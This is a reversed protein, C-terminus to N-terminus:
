VHLVLEVREALGVVVDDRASVAAVCRRRHLVGFGEGQGRELVAEGEDHLQVVEPRRARRGNTPRNRCAIIEAGRSSQRGTSTTSSSACRKAGCSPAVAAVSPTRARVAWPRLRPNVALALWGACRWSRRSRGPRRSCSATQAPDALRQVPAGDRIREAERGTGGLRAPQLAQRIAAEPAEARRDAALRDEEPYRIHFSRRHAGPLGLHRRRRRSLRQPGDQLAESGDGWAVLRLRGRAAVMPWRGAPQARPPALRLVPPPRVVPRPALRIAWQSQGRVPPATQAAPPDLLWLGAGAGAAATGSLGGRM